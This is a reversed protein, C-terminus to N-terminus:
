RPDPADVPVPLDAARAKWAQESAGPDATAVAQILLGLLTAEQLAFTYGVPDGWRDTDPNNPVVDASFAQAYTAPTFSDGPDALTDQFDPDPTADYDVGREALIRLEDLGRCSGAYHNPPVFEGHALLWDVLAKKATSTM